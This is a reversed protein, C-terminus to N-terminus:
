ALIATLTSDMLDILAQVLVGKNKWFYLDLCFPRWNQMGQNMADPARIMWDTGLSAGFDEGYDLEVHVLCEQEENYEPRLLSIGITRSVSYAIMSHSIM